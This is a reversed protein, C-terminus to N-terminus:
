FQAQMSVHLRGASSGDYDDPKRVPVGYDLRLLAHEGWAARLGVGLSALFADEEGSLPKEIGAWGLDCFAVFQLREDPTKSGVLSGLAGVLLPTRYELTATVGHDGLYERERFGRVSNAGGVGMQEASVLAGSAIQADVKAFVMGRGSWAGDDARSGGVTQIRALQFHGIYYNEEAAFRQGKMEKEDSGRVKAVAEVTAYNRGMWSDLGKGTYLLAVSLPILDVENENLDEKQAGEHVVLRDGVNRWTLGLALRLSDEWDPLLEVSGQVGAFRGDGKVDIDPVVDDSDVETYGGHITLSADRRGLHFPVYYSGAGGYLSGDLATLGNLTLAHDAQWLNLYQVTARGMWKDAAYEDNAESGSGYNDVALVLHLPLEDKVSLSVGLERADGRPRSLKVNATLDPDSNLDYFARYLKAYDFPEGERVGARVMRNSVQSLSRWHRADPDEFEVALPGFTGPEASVADGVAKVSALYYGADRAAKEVAAAAAALNTRAAERALLDSLTEGDAARASSLWDGGKSVPVAPAASPSAQTVARAREADRFRRKAQARADREARAEADRADRAAARAADYEKGAARLTKEATGVAADAKEAATAAADKAALARSAEARAAAAAGAAKARVTEDADKGASLARSLAREADKLKGKADRLARESDKLAKRATEAAKEATELGARASERASEAQSLRKGAEASAASRESRLESLIRDNLAALEASRAAAAERVADRAISEEVKKGSRDLADMGSAVQSAAATVAKEAPGAAIVAAPLLLLLVGSLVHNCNSKM